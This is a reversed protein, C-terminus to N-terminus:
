TCNPLLISFVISISVFVFTVGINAKQSYNRTKCCFFFFQNRWPFYYSPYAAFLVAFVALASLLMPYDPDFNPLPKRDIM